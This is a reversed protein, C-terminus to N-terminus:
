SSTNFPEFKKFEHQPTWKESCTNVPEFKESNTNLPEIKKPVHTSPKMDWLMHQPNLNKRAQATPNLSTSLPKLNKSNTNLTWIKWFKHQPTWITASSTNLIKKKCKHQPVSSVGSADRQESSGRGDVAGPARKHWLQASRKSASHRSASKLSTDERALGGKKFRKSPAPVHM